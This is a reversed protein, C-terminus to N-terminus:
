RKYRAIWEEVQRGAAERAGFGFAIAAAVAIAGLVLGFALNVIENALGMQRLAMAGTFTIIAVRAIPALLGANAAGSSAIARAALNALYLGVGFIVLGLVIHGATVLLSSLLAQLESFGLLGAAEISAFIMITVLVAQGVITSPARTPVTPAAAVPTVFGIAALARDFGIASLARAILEAVVRGVVFSLVLVITAAFISPIANLLTNLMNSAPATVADIQLANLAAIAVPILILVYVITGVTQSVTRAGLARSVGAREAFRDVGVAALLNTVIRRILQAAFWGVVLAVIAAFVNPLFALAKNLLAQVPELLGNLGLTSLLMPLFLLWVTWYMVERMSTAIPQGEDTGLRRDVGAAELARGVVRSLLSALVGAVLILLVGGFLRPVYASLQQLFVNLPQTVATLQLAEFFAIFVFLMVLWFVATGCVREVAGPAQPRGFMWEAIRNELTTRHLIGRVIAAAVLAVVWGAVLIILAGIISPLTGTLLISTQTWFQQLM